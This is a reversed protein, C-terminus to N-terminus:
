LLKFNFYFNLKSIVNVKKYQCFKFSVQKMIFFLILIGINLAMGIMCQGINISHQIIANSILNSENTKM